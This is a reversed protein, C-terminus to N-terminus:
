EGRETGAPALQQHASDGTYVTGKIEGWMKMYGMTIIHVMPRKVSM